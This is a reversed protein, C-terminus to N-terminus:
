GLRLRCRGNEAECCPRTALDLECLRSISRPPVTTYALVLSDMPMQMALLLGRHSLLRAAMCRGSSAVCPMPLLCIPSEQRERM